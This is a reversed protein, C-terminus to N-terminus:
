VKRLRVGPGEGNEAIFIAGGAELAKVIADLTQASANVRGKIGELRKITDVSVGSATALGTQEMRILARAARLQEGTPIM